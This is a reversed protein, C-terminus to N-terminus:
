YWILKKKCVPNDGINGFLWDITEVALGHENYFDATGMSGYLKYGMDLLLRVSGLMEKKNKYGGISLLISDKPIEFGSNLLYNLTQIQKISQHSTKGTGIMAKLYAEHPDKGFCAVEGTSSMEVGLTVDAGSLRSFSFQPVKLFFVNMLAMSRILDYLFRVKVGFKDGTGRLVDVKEVEDGVILRCFKKM